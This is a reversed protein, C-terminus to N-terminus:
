SLDSKARREVVRAVSAAHADVSYMGRANSARTERKNRDSNNLERVARHM